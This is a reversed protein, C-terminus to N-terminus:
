GPKCSRIIPMTFSSKLRCKQSCYIDPTVNDTVQMNGYELVETKKLAGTLGPVIYIIFYLIILAALFIYILKNGSKARATKKKAVDNM